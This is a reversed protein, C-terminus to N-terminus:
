RLLRTASESDLTSIEAEDEIVLRVEPAAAQAAELGTHVAQKVTRLLWMIRHLEERAEDIREAIEGNAAGDSRAGSRATTLISEAEHQAEQLLRTAEAEIRAAHERAASMAASGDGSAATTADIEAARAEAAAIIQASRAEAEQLLKSKAEAAALFATQVVTDADSKSRLKTELQSAKAKAVALEEELAAAAKVVSTVFTDVAAPDYGRKVLPFEAAGVRSSLSEM